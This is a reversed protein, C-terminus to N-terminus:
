GIAMNNSPIQYRMGTKPAASAPAMRNWSSQNKLIDMYDKRFQADQAAKKAEEQQAAIAGAAGLMNSGLSGTRYQVQTSPAMKTWPSYATEIARQVATQRQLNAENQSKQLAGVVSAIQGMTAADM